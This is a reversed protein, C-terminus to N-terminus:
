RSTSEACSSSSPSAQRYTREECVRLDIRVAIVESDNHGHILGLASIILDVDREDDDVLLFIVLIIINHLKRHHEVSGMIREGYCLIVEIIAGLRTKKDSPLRIASPEPPDFRSRVAM